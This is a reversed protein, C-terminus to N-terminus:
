VNERGGFRRGRRSFEVLAEHFEEKGFDPWLVPTVYFEAYSAQWLLFNSLRMEGSTRIILDPDPLGATYLLGAFFEETIQEPSLRGAKVRVAIERAAAVIEERAGYSLALTLTGRSYGRTAHIVKRLSTRVPTPLRDLQGIAHLRIEYKHLDKERESLFSRLLGMLDQIEDRPRRWNETSFAYLTLYRIKHESCCEVVRRVSEAGARHGEIRPVGRARAWRGNGDMIVAVHQPITLETKAQMLAGPYGHPM